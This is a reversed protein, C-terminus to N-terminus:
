RSLGLDSLIDRMYDLSVWVVGRGEGRETSWAWCSWWSRRRWGAVYGGTLVGIQMKVPDGLDRGHNDM